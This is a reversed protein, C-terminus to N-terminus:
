NGTVSPMLNRKHEVIIGSQFTQRTKFNHRPYMKSRVRIELWRFFVFVKKLKQKRKRLFDVFLRSNHWLPGITTHVASHMRIGIKWVGKRQAIRCEGWQRSEVHLTKQTMFLASKLLVDTMRDLFLDLDYQKRELALRVFTFLQSFRKM